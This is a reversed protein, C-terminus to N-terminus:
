RAVSVEELSRGRTEPVVTLLLVIGVLPGAAFLSAAHGLGGLPAALIGIATPSLMWCIQGVVQVTLSYGTARIETPFLETSLASTATRAAQYAFMTLAEGALIPVREDSRFLSWMAVASLLYFLTATFRRGIRDMLVGSLYSGVTGM